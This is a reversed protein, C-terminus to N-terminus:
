LQTVGITVTWSTWWDSLFALVTQKEIPKGFASSKETTEEHKTQAVSANPADSHVSRRFSARLGNRLLRPKSGPACVLTHQGAVGVRQSESLLRYFLDAPVETLSDISISEAVEPVDSTVLLDATNVKYRECLCM